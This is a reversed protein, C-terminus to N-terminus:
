STATVDVLARMIEGGHNLLPGTHGEGPYFRAQCNPIRAALYRGSAVPALNDAEGHWVHVPVRIDELRFDLRRWLNALDLAAGAGGAGLAARMDEVVTAYDGPTIDAAPSTGNRLHEDASGLSALTLKSILFGALAPFWRAIGFFLRNAGAMGNMVEPLYLPLMASVLAACRVREPLKYACAAAYMGGGSSGIVAFREFGLVDAIETIQDPYDILRSNRDPTSKGYGPREPAILRIHQELAAAGYVRSVIRSGPTGHFSFVPTGNPDGYEAYGIVQGNSLTITDTSM